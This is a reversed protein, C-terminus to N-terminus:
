AAEIELAGYAFAEAYSEGYDTDTVFEFRHWAEHRATVIAEGIGLDARLWVAGGARTTDAVGLLDPHGSWTKFDAGPWYRSRYSAVQPSAQEYWRVKPASLGLEKAANHAAAEAAVRVAKDPLGDPDVEIFLVEGPQPTPLAAPPRAPAAPAPQTKRAWAWAPDRSLDVPRGPRLSFTERMAREM